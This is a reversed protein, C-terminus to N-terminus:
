ALFRGLVNEVIQSFNNDGGNWPLSGCFATSGVSFVAGGGPVEGGVGDFIWALDPARSEETRRCYAGESQGQSTFGVGALHQPPRGNRRWLHKILEHKNSAPLRSRRGSLVM